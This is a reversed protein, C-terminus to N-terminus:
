SKTSNFNGSKSAAQFERIPGFGLLTDGAEEPM